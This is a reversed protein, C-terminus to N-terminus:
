RGDKGRTKHGINGVRNNSGMTVNIGGIEPQRELGRKKKRYEKLELYLFLAAVIVTVVVIWGGNYWTLVVGVASSLITKLFDRM